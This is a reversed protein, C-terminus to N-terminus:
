SAGMIGLVRKLREPLGRALLAREIYGGPTSSPEPSLVSLADKLLSQVTDSKGTLVRNCARCTVENKNETAQTPKNVFWYVGIGCASKNASVEIFHVKM